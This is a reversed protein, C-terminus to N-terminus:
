QSTGDVSVLEEPLVVTDPTEAQKDFRLVGDIIHVVSKAARIDKIIV